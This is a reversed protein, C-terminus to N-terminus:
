SFYFMLLKYLMLLPLIELSFVYLFFQVIQIEANKRFLSLALIYRFILLIGVVIFSILLTFQWLNGQSYALLFLLPLLSIATIKNINFVLTIYKKTLLQQGFLWGFFSLLLYKVSYIATLSISSIFFVRWFSLKTEPVFYLMIFVTYLGVSLIFVLNALLAPWTTPAQQELFKRYSTSNRSFIRFLDPFYKPFIQKVLAIICLLFLLFYFLSDNSQREHKQGFGLTSSRSFAFYPHHALTQNILTYGSTDANATPLHLSNSPTSFRWFVSSETEREVPPLRQGNTLQPVLFLLIFLFYKIFLRNQQL